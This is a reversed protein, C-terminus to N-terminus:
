GDDMKYQWKSMIEKFEVLDIDKVEKWEGGPGVDLDMHEFQFVM